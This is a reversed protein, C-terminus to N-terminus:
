TTNRAYRTSPFPVVNHEPQDSAAVAARKTHWSTIARSLVDLIKPSTRELLARQSDDVPLGAAVREALAGVFTIRRARNLAVRDPSVDTM